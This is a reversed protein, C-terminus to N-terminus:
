ILRPLAAASLGPDATSARHAETCEAARAQPRLLQSPIALQRPFPGRNPCAGTNKHPIGPGGERHVRLQQATSTAEDAGEAIAGELM